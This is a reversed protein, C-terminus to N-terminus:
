IVAFVTGAEIARLRELGHRLRRGMADHLPRVDLNTPWNLYHFARTFAPDWSCTALVLREPTWGLARGTQWIAGRLMALTTPCTDDMNLYSLLTRVVPSAITQAQGGIDLTLRGDPGIASRLLRVVEPAIRLQVEQEGARVAPVYMRGPIALSSARLDFTPGCPSGIQALLATPWGTLYTIRLVVSLRWKSRADLDSQDLRRLRIALLLADMDGLGQPIAKARNTTLSGSRRYRRRDHSGDPVLQDEDGEEGLSGDRVVAGALMLRLSRAAGMPDVVGRRSDPLARRTGPARSPQRESPKRSGLANRLAARYAELVGAEHVSPPAMMDIATFWQGAQLTEGLRPSRRGEEYLHRAALYLRYCPADAEQGAALLKLQRALIARALPQPLGSAIEGLFRTVPGLKTQPLGFLQPQLSPRREAWAVIADRWRQVTVDEPCIGLLGIVARQVGRAGRQPACVKCLMAVDDASLGFPALARVLGAVNWRSPPLVPPLLDGLIV